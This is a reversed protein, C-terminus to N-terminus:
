YGGQWRPTAVIFAGVIIALLMLFPIAQAFAIMAPAMPNTDNAESAVFSNISPTLLYPAFQLYMLLVVCIVVLNTFTMQAPNREHQKMMIM